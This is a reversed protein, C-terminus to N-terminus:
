LREPLGVTVCNKWFTKELGFVGGFGVGCSPWPTSKKPLSLTFPNTVFVYKWFVSWTEGNLGFM